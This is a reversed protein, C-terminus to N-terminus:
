RKAYANVSRSFNDPQSFAMEARRRASFYFVNEIKQLNSCELHMLWIPDLGKIWGEILFGSMSSGTKPPPATASGAGGFILWRLRPNRAILCEGFYIGLDFITNLGRLKGTWPGAFDFFAREVKPHWLRWALLGGYDPLWASVAAVGADDLGLSVDFKRLFESLAHIRGAKNELFFWKNEEFADRPLQILNGRHPPEFLPYDTLAKRVHRARKRADSRLMYM